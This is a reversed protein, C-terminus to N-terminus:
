DRPSPSTYLLCTTVICLGAVWYDKRVYTEAIMWIMLVIASITLDWVLGSSADNVHWADIMNNISYGHEAFWRLFYRMPIIAGIVAFCLYVIRLLSM